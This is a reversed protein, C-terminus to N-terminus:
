RLVVKDNRSTTRTRFYVNPVQALMWGEGLLVVRGKTRLTDANSV